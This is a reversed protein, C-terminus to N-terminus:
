IINFFISQLIEEPKEDWKIIMFPISNEKCYEMKIKDRIRGLEFEKQGGFKTSAYYHQKGNYEICMNHKPIYFDFKLERDLKCGKFKAQPIYEINHQKLWEGIEREGKSQYGLCDVCGFGKKLSQLTKTSGGHIPCILEIHSKNNMYNDLNFMYEKGEFINQLENLIQNKTKTNNYSVMENKCYPCGQGSIHNNPQQEFIGHINCKIKIKTKNNVYYVMSYDYKNGHIKKANSIFNSINLKKNGSCKSCGNGNLHDAANQYFVGHNPCLISVKEDLKNYVTNKYDFKNGHVGIARRIFEENTLKKRGM